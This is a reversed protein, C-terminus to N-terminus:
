CVTTETGTKALAPALPAPPASKNAMHEACAKAFFVEESNLSRGQCYLLGWSQELARRGLPFDALACDKPPQVLASAPLITFCEGLELLPALADVVDTELTTNLVIGEAAFYREVKRRLLPSGSFCAYPKGAM